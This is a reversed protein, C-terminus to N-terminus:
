CNLIFTTPAAWDYRSKFDSITVWLLLLNAYKAGNLEM